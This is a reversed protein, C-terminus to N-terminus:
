EGSTDSRPVAPGDVWLPGPLRLLLKLGADDVNAVWLRAGVQEARAAMREVLVAAPRGEHLRGGIWGPIRATPPEIESSSAVDDVTRDEGDHSRFSWRMGDRVPGAPTALWRSTPAEAADDPSWWGVLTGSPVEYVPQPPLPAAGDESGRGREGAVTTVAAAALGCESSEGQVELFRLVGDPARCDDGVERWARRADDERVGAVLLAPGPVIAAVVGLRDALTRLLGAMRPEGIQCRWLEADAWAVVLVRGGRPVLSVLAADYSCGEQPEAAAELAAQAALTSPPLWFAGGVGLRVAVALAAESSAGLVVRTREGAPVTALHRQWRREADEVIVLSPEPAGRELARSLVQQLPEDLEPPPEPVVRIM